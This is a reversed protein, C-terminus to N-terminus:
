MLGRQDSIARLGSSPEEVGHHLQADAGAQLGKYLALKELYGTAGAKTRNRVAVKPGLQHYTIDIYAQVAAQEQESIGSFVQVKKQVAMVWGECFLDAHRTKNKPLFDLLQTTVYEARAVKAQRYLVSFAYSAIDPKTGCGIYEWVGHHYDRGHLLMCGFTDAIIQALWVEWKVPSEKAGSRSTQASVDAALVDRQGINHEAMLAHAHRLAIAAENQNSSRSLALCKKIKSLIKSKDEM